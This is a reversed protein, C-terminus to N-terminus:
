VAAGSLRVLEIGLLSLGVGVTSCTFWVRMDDWRTVIYYATYFPIVLYFFGYLWDESFAGYAGALHGALILFGGTAMLICGALWTGSPAILAIAVLVLAYAIGGRFLWKLWPFTPEDRRAKQPTPGPPAQRKRRPRDATTPDDGRAPVFVVSQGQTDPIRRASPETPEELAYVDPESTEGDPIAFSAGCHKCHVQKGVHIADV